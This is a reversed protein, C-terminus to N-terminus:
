DNKGGFIMVCTFVFLVFAAFQISFVGYDKSILVSFVCVVCHLISFEKKTLFNIM